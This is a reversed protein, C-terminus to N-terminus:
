LRDDEEKRVRKPTFMRIKHTREIDAVLEDLADAGYHHSVHRSHQVAWYGVRNIWVNWKYRYRRRGDHDAIRIGGLRRDRFKLYTSGTQAVHPEHLGFHALERLLKDRVQPITPRNVLAAVQEPTAPESM